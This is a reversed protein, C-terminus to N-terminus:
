VREVNSDAKSAVVLTILGGLSPQMRQAQLGAVQLLAPIDQNWKCGRGTAAVASATADQLSCAALSAPTREEPERSAHNCAHVSM